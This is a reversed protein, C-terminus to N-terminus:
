RQRRRHFGNRNHARKLKALEDPNVWGSSLDLYDGGGGLPRLPGAMRLHDPDFDRNGVHLRGDHGVGEFQGTFPRGSHPIVKTREGPDPCRHRSAILYGVGLGLLGALLYIEAGAALIFEQADVQESGNWRTVNGKAKEVLYENCRVHIRKQPHWWLDRPV